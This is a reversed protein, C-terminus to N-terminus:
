LLPAGPRLARTAMSTPSFRNLPTAEDDWWDEYFGLIVFGANLQGGILTDLSHSFELAEGQAIQERRESSLTDDETESYPLRYRAVLSGPGSEPEHDFLFFSPNMFGALLSGGPRLVRFCERWVRTVDPVFVTSVPNFVFDFTGDRFRSLDAMDGQECEISLGEREAVLADKGLQAESLDFSVVEAGAAALIPAQQGGGSALCLVEQGQLDGFWGRPVTKNPTLIVDWRGNRAAEIVRSDVPESWRSGKSSQRNWAAKNHELVDM